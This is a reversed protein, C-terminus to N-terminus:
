IVTSIVTHAVCMSEDNVDVNMSYIPRFSNPQQQRQVTGHWYANCKKSMTIYILRVSNGSGHSPSANEPQRPQEVNRKNYYDDDDDDYNNNYYSLLLAEVLKPKFNPNIGFASVLTYRCVCVREWESMWNGSFHIESLICVQM